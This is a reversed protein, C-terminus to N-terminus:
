EAQAQARVYALWADDDAAIAEYAKVHQPGIFVLYREGPAFDAEVRCDGTLVARGATADEWFTDSDHSVPATPEDPTAVIVSFYAAGDGKVYDIASFLQVPLKGALVLDGEAGGKTAEDPIDKLDVNPEGADEGAPEALVIASSRAILDDVSAIQAACHEAEASDQSEAVSCAGAAFLSLTVISVTFNRM